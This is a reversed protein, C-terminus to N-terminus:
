ATKRENTANKRLNQTQTIKKTSIQKLYVIQIGIQSKDRIKQDLAEHMHIYEKTTKLIPKRGHM